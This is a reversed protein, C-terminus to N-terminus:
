DDSSAVPTATSPLLLAPILALVAFGLAWWYTHAFATALTNHGRKDIQQQLVVALIAIGFSGGLQQFIRLSSTGRAISEDKLDRYAGAMAPVLASGIGLGSVFSAVSLYEYSTQPGLRTLAFTSAATLLLGGVVLLQPGVRTSLKSAAVLALGFGLGQPALLLGAHLADEGRVLQYYIPLLLASGLMAMSFFFIVGSSGLFTRSRFLRPDLIPETRSRLAHVVFAFMLGLGALVPLVVERSAFTGATGARSLGYVFGTIAPSLLLLGFVDLRAAAPRRMEPMVVRSTFFLAILCIPANIYFILRWSAESVLLGGLTPGLVPALMAPVGILGIVRPLRAPGAARALITQMVPITAGGGLGQVVRFAILSGASWAVGCLLSGATFLTIAVTWTPKAGFREVAWGSLPIVMALALLYATSIWQITGISTNFDRALTELAVNVMTADLGVMVAGLMLTFGLALLERPLPASRAQVTVDATFSAM